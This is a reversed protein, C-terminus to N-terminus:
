KKGKIVEEFLATLKDSSEKAAETNADLSTALKQQVALGQQSLEFLKQTLLANAEDKKTITSVFYRVIFFLIALTVGAIGLQSYDTNM